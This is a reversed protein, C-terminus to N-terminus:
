DGGDAKYVLSAKKVLTDAQGSCQFEPSRWQYSICFVYWLSSHLNDLICKQLALPTDWEWMFMYQGGGGLCCVRLVLVGLDCPRQVLSARRSRYWMENFLLLENLNLAPIKLCDISALFRTPIPNDYRGALSCLSASNMGQFRNRPEM